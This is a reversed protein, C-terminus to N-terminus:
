NCKKMANEAMSVESFVIFAQGRKKIGKHAIIELIKGSQSFLDYLQKKLDDVKIKENLNHVYLTFNQSM